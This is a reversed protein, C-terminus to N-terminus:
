ARARAEVRARHLLLADHDVGSDTTVTVAQGPYFVGLRVLWENVAREIARRAAEASNARRFASREGHLIVRWAAASGAPLIEGIREAGLAVIWGGLGDGAFALVPIM